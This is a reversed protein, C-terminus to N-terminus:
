VGDGARYVDCRWLRELSLVVDTQGEGRWREVTDAFETPSKGRLRILEGFPWEAPPWDENAVLFAGHGRECVGAALRKLYAEAGGSKSFGRRVFGIKLSTSAM